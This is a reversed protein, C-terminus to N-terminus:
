KKNVVASAMFFLPTAGQQPKRPALPWSFYPHPEGTRNVLLWLGHFVPTHSGTMVSQFM